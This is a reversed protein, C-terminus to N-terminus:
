HGPLTLGHHDRLDALVEDAQVRLALEDSNNTIVWDAVARRQADTAQRAIRNRADEESMHRLTVLRQLRIDLATEVVIVYDMRAAHGSEVLLPADYVVAGTPNQEATVLRRRLEEAIPGEVTSNLLDTKEATAFALRALEARRLAGEETRIQPGFAAVLEAIVTPQEVVERSVEDADVVPLGREALIRAVTSKGSGIGGTLGIIM